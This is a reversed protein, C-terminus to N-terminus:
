YFDVMPVFVFEGLDKKELGNKRKIVRLMKQTYKGVPIIMIGNIKLQKILEVPIEIPAATVIIKDFPAYKKLGFFGNEHFIKFNKIKEKKLNKEAFDILEKNVEVSYVIKKVIKCILALNYGSGTGIELVKDDEKLELAQLMIMITSPQSITQKNLIPLAIDYYAEKNNLVFNERNVKNFANLLKKNIILGSNKWNDILDKKSM